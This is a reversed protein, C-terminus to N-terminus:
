RKDVPIKVLIDYCEDITLRMFASSKPFWIWKGKVYVKHQYYILLKGIHEGIFSIKAIFDKDKQKPCPICYRFNNKGVVIVSTSRECQVNKFEQMLQEQYSTIKDESGDDDDFDDCDFDSM